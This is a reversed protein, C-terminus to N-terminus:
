ARVCTMNKNAFIWKEGKKASLLASIGFGVACIPKSADFFAEVVRAVKPATREHIFDILGGFTSPILLASFEVPDVDEIARPASLINQKSKLWQECKIDEYQLSAILM